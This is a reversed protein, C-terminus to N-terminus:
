KRNQFDDVNAANQRNFPLVFITTPINRQAYRDLIETAYLNSTIKLKPLCIQGAMLPLYIYSLCYEANPLLRVNSVQKEGSFMFFDSSEMSLNLEILNETLNFIQYDTRFMKRVFCYAPTQNGVLIPCHEVPFPPLDIVTDVFNAIEEHDSLRQWKVALTGINLLGKCWQNPTLCTILSIQSGPELIVSTHTFIFNWFIVVNCRFCQESSKRYSEEVEFNQEQDLFEALRWEVSEIKVPFHAVSKLDCSVICKGKVVLRDVIEGKFDHLNTSILAYPSIVDFTLVENSSCNCNLPQYETEICINYSVTCCIQLRPTVQNCYVSISLKHVDLSDVSEINLDLSEKNDSQNEYKFGAPVNLTLCSFKVNLSRIPFKELNQILIVIPYIEDIMIPPTHEFSLSLNADRPAIRFNSACPKNDFENKLIANFAPHLPYIRCRDFNEWHLSGYTKSGLRGIELTLSTVQITKGIDDASPAFKFNLTYIKRPEFLLRDNRQDDVNDETSCDITCFQDYIQNEFKVVLKSFKLALPCNLRIHVSFNVIEDAKIDQNEFELRLEIFSYINHMLLHFFCGHRLTEDWLNRSKALKEEDFNENSNEGDDMILWDPSRGNLIKLLNNQILLKKEDCIKLHPACLELAISVYAKLNAIMFACKLAFISAYELLPFWKELRYEWVVPDLMQLAKEYDGIIMYQEGSRLMNLLRMRPCKYKEYHLIAMNLYRLIINSQDVITYENHQYLTLADKEECVVNNNDAQTQVRGLALAVQAYDSLLAHWPRLGCFEPKFNQLRLKTRQLVANLQENPLEGALNLHQKKFQLSQGRRATAYEAASQYYFGPHQTQVPALGRQVAQRFLDAFLGFASNLWGVSISSNSIRRSKRNLITWTNKLIGYLTSRHEM